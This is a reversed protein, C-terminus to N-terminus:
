KDQITLRSGGLNVELAPKTQQQYAWFGLAGVAVLLVGILGFMTTRTM